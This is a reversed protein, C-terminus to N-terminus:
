ISSFFASSQWVSILLRVFKILAGVFWNGYCVSQHKPNILNCVLWCRIIKLFTARLDPCWFCLSKLCAKKWQAISSFLCIAIRHRTKRGVSQKVRSIDGLLSSRLCQLCHLLRREYSLHSITVKNPSSGAPSLYSTFVPLMRIRVSMYQVLYPFYVPYVRCLQKQM